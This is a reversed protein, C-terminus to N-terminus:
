LILKLELLSQISKFEYQKTKQFPDFHIAHMGVSAGGRVDAEICDGIMISESAFAGTKDLAIQFIQPDPKKIGVEDSCLVLDFYTRLESSALKIHQVEVFGNTIIHLQYKSKLYTLVEHAGNFLNTKYPSSALYADAIDSAFSNSIPFDLQSFADVFRGVRLQEKTVENKRYRDWYAANIGEYLNIFSEYNVGNLQAEFAIFLEQLAARSNSEFDWITHDLDFFIHKVNNM